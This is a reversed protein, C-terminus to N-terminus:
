FNVGGVLIVNAYSRYEGTRIITRAKKTLEKFEAHPVGFALIGPFVGRIETVIGPNVEDAESAYIFSEVVLEGKLAELVQIFTPIGRVLSLDIVPVGEPVPLGCDGVALYETHGLAAVAAAVKPNLIGSERM